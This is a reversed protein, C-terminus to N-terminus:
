QIDRAEQSASAVTQRGAVSESVLQLYLTEARDRAKIAKAYVREADVVRSEARRFRDAARMVQAAKTKSM